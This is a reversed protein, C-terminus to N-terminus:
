FKMMGFKDIENIFMRKLYTSNDKGKYKVGYMNLHGLDFYPLNLKINIIM